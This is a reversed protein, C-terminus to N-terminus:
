FKLLKKEHLKENLHHRLEEALESKGYVSKFDYLMDIHRMDQPKHNDLFQNIQHKWDKLSKRWLPNSAM